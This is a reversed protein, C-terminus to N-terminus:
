VSAHARRKPALSALKAGDDAVGWRGFDDEFFDTTTPRAQEDHASVAM